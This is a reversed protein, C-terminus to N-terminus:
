DLLPLDKYLKKLEKNLKKCNPSVTELLQYFERQHNMFFFHAIEHLIVSELYKEPLAALYYNLTICNKRPTCLGFARKMYKVKYEPKLLPNKFLMLLRVKHIRLYRNVEEQYLKKLKTKIATLSNSKIGLIIRKDIISYFDEEKSFELKYTKGWLLLEDFNNKIEPEYNSRKQFLRQIYDYNNILIERIQNETIRYNTTIVCIDKKFRLYTNKNDKYIIQCHFDLDRYIFRM